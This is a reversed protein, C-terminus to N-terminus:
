LDFEETDDEFEELEEQEEYLENSQEQLWDMIDEESADPNDILIEAIINRAQESGKSGRYSSVLGSEQAKHLIDFMKGINLKQDVDKVSMRLESAIRQKTKRVFKKYGKITSTESALFTRARAFESRLKNIRQQKSVESSLKTSFTKEKGLGQLAPANINKSQLRRIRKNGASVLRSTISRLQSENLRNFTDLDIDMIDTIKLGKVNM